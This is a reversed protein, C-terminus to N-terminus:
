KIGSVPYRVLRDGRFAGVWLEDGVPLAVSAAGLGPPPTQNLLEKYTLTQPDVRVVVTMQAAQGRGRQAGPEAAGTGQGAVILSKHDPTWRINDTRFGLPLEQRDVPTKGRSLRLFSQKGWQAVYIWKGDPSVEIGNAGSAESGPVKAWGNKAHWEWVEGNQEGAALKASLGGGRGGPPAPQRPDFNTVVFGEDPLSAVSNLGVPDPVVVCGIWTVVPSASKANVEFIEISERDGHHVAYLTHVSGRGPKVSLGHTGAQNAALPGPCAGYAKRDFHDPAAGSPFVRSAAANTVDILYLGGEGFMASAILWKSQPVAVLDEPAALGCVYKVPSSTGCDQLPTQSPGQASAVALPLVLVPIAFLLLRVRSKRFTEM